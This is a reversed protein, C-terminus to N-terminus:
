RVLSAGLEYARKLDNPFDEARSKRKEEEIGYVAFKEYDDVQLTNFSSLTTCSSFIRKMFNENLKVHPAYGFTHMMEETVNMTYVMATKIKRPFLTGYDKYRVFPFCLREIFSAAEGTIRGFYIPSGIIVADANNYVDDLYASIEDKYGCKGWSSGGNKKCAFCSVCGKFDVDYLNVLETEAGASEAGKLAEQLLQATNWSKRPSGNFAIVKM